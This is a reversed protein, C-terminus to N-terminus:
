GRSSKVELFGHGAVAATAALGIGRPAGARPLAADATARLDKDARGALLTSVPAGLQIAAHRAPRRHEHADQPLGPAAGTAADANCNRRIILRSRLAVNLRRIERGLYRGRQIAEESMARASINSSAFVSVLLSAPVLAAAAAPGLSRRGRGILARRMPRRKVVIKVVLRSHRAGTTYIATFHSGRSTTCPKCSSRCSASIRGPAVPRTSRRLVHGTHRRAPSVRSDVRCRCAGRRWRVHLDDHLLRYPCPTQQRAPRVYAASPTPHM